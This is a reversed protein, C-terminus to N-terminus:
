WYCAMLPEALEDESEYWPAAGGGGGGGAGVGGHAEGAPERGSLLDEMRRRTAALRDRVHGLVIRYPHFGPHEHARAFQVSSTGLRQAMLSRRTFTPDGGLGSAARNAGGGGGGGAGGSAATSMAANAAERFPTPGPTFPGPLAGLRDPTGPDAYSPTGPVEPEPQTGDAAAAAATATTTYGHATPEASAGASPGGLMPHQSAGLDGADSARRSENFDMESGGEVDQTRTYYTLLTIGFYMHSIILTLLYAGGTCVATPCRANRALACLTPPPRRPTRRSAVGTRTKVGSRGRCGVWCFVCICVYVCMYVCTCVCACVSM